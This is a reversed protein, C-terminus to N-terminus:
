SDYSEFFRTIPFPKGHGPYVINIDLTRLKDVSRKFAQKDAILNMKTPVRENMLLDGCFFDGEATLFGISGKSHGPIHYVTAEFGYDSLSQGENLFIDPTFRDIKKLRLGLLHVMVKGFIKMLYNMNRNWTFDGRQVMGLDEFHM